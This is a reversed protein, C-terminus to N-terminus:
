CIDIGLGWYPQKVPLLGQQSKKKELPKELAKPRAHHAQTFKFTEIDFNTKM